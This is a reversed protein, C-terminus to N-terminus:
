KVIKVYDKYIYGTTGDSMKITVWNKSDDGYGYYEYKEGTKAKGIVNSGDKSAADRINVDSIIEIEGVAKASSGNSETVAQSATGAAASGSEGGNLGNMKVFLIAVVAIILIAVIIIPLRMRDPGSDSEDDEDYGDDPRDNYRDEYRDDSRGDPRNDYRDDSRGDPRNDYRDDLRDDPEDDQFKEPKRRYGINDQDSNLDDTGTDTGAAREQRGGNGTKFDRSKVQQKTEFIINKEIDDFPMDKTEVLKSVPIDDDEPAESVKKGCKPCFVTGESLEAGCFPCTDILNVKEGCKPCFTDTERLEAGCNRCKM